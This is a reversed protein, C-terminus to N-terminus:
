SKEPWSIGDPMAELIISTNDLPRFAKYKKIRFFGTPLFTYGMSMLCALRHCGDGMYYKRNEFLKGTSTPLILDGTHPVVPCRKEFGHTEINDYLVASKIIRKVFADEIAQPDERIKKRAKPIAVKTFWIYYAHKEALGLYSDFDSRM